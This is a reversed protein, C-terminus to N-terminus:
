PGNSITLTLVSSFNAPTFYQPVVAFKMTVTLYNTTGGGTSITNAVKNGSLIKVGAALDALTAQGLAAGTFPTLGNVASRTSPDYNFGASIVDSRPLLVGSAPTVTTIGVGVDGASVTAGGAAAALLTTTFSAQCDVRYGAAQRSRVRFQVQTAVPTASSGPTLTGLGASAVLVADATNTVRDNQALASIPLSLIILVVTAHRPNM